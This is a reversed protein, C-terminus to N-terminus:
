MERHLRALLSRMSARELDDVGSLPEDLLLLRPRVVLVRALALRCQESSSLESPRRSEVSRLGVMALAAAIKAAVEDRAEGRARLGFGVNDAVSMHPWLGYPEFVMGINRREPSVREVDEDDVVIRGSDPV